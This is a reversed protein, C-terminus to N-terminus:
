ETFGKHKFDDRPKPHAADWEARHEKEWEKRPNFPMRLDDLSKDGGNQQYTDYNSQADQKHASEADRLKKQPGDDIDRMDAVNKNIDSNAIQAAIISELKQLERGQETPPTWPLNSESITDSIIQKLDLM